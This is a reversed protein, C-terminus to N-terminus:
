RTLLLDTGHLARAKSEFRSSLWGWMNRQLFTKVCDNEKKKREKLTNKKGEREPGITSILSLGGKEKKFQAM